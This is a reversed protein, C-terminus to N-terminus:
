PGATSPSHGGAVAKPRRRPVNARLPLGVRRTPYATATTFARSEPTLRVALRARRPRSTKAVCYLLLSGGPPPPRPGHAAFVQRGRRAPRRPGVRGDHDPPRRLSTFSSAEAPLRLGPSM